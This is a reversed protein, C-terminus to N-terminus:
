RGKLIIKHITEYRPGSPTLESKVLLVEEAQWRVAKINIKDLSVAGGPLSKIRGLTAHPAWNKDELSFGRRILESHLRAHMESATNEFDKIKVALTHPRNLDPFAVIREFGLNFPRFGPCVADMAGVAQPCQEDGVDGLFDVTVHLNYEEVWKIKLRKNRAGIGAQIGVLEGKAEPPIPLAIFARM